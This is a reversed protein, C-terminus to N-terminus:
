LLMLRADDAPVGRDGLIRVTSDNECALAVDAAASSSNTSGSTVGRDLRRDDDAKDMQVDDPPVASLPVTGGECWREQMQLGRVVEGADAVPQQKIVYRIRVGTRLHSWCGVHQFSVM